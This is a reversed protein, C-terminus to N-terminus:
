FAEQLSTGQKDAVVSHLAQSFVAAANPDRAAAVGEGHTVVRSWSAEPCVILRPKPFPGAAPSGPARARKRQYSAAISHLRHHAQEAGSCARCLVAEGGRQAAPM